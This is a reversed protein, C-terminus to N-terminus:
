SNKATANLQRRLKLRLRQLEILNKNALVVTFMEKKRATLTHAIYTDKELFAGTEWVKRMSAAAKEPNRNRRANDAKSMLYLNGIDCNLTDGNKFGVIHRPPIKGHRNEFTHRHLLQWKGEAIRIYKYPIGGRKTFRITVCNDYKTNAPQHGKRFETAPSLHIGKMGKNFPKHGKPFWSSASMRARAEPSRFLGLRHFRNDISSVTRGLHAALETNNKLDINQRLFNDEAIAWCQRISNYLASKDNQIKSKM